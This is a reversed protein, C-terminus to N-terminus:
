QIYTELFAGLIKDVYIHPFCMNFKFENYKAINM